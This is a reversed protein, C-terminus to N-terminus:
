EVATQLPKGKNQQPNARRSRESNLVALAGTTWPEVHAEWWGRRDERWQRFEASRAGADDDPHYGRGYGLVWGPWLDPTLGGPDAAAGKRRPQSKRTM